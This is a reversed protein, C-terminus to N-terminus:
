ADLLEEVLLRHGSAAGPVPEEVLRHRAEAELDVTLRQRDLRGKVEELIRVLRLAVGGGVRERRRELRIEAEEGVDGIREGLVLFDGVAPTAELIDGRRAM